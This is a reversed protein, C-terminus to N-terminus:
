NPICLLIWKDSKQKTSLSPLVSQLFIARSFSTFNKPCIWDLDQEVVKTHLIFSGIPVKSFELYSSLHSMQAYYCGSRTQEMLFLYLAYNCLLIPLNQGYNSEKFIKQRGISNPIEFCYKGEISTAVGSAFLADVIM